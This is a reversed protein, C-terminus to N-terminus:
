HKKPKPAMPRAYKYVDSWNGAKDKRLRMQIQKTPCCHGDGPAWDIANVILSGPTHAVVETINFVPPTFEIAPSSERPEVYFGGGMGIRVVTIYVSAGSGGHCGIQGTWILAYEAKDWNDDDNSRNWPILPVVLNEKFIGECAISKAYQSAVELVQQKVWKDTVPENFYGLAPFCAALLWMALLLAKNM